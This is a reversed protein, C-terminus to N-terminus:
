VTLSNKTYFLLPRLIKQIINKILYNRKLTLLLLTYESGRPSFCCIIESFNTQFIITKTRHIINNSTLQFYDNVLEVGNSKLYFGLWNLYYCTVVSQIRIFRINCITTYLEFFICNFHYRIYCYKSIMLYSSM